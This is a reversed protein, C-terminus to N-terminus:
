VRRHKTKILERDLGTHEIIHALYEGGINHPVIAMDAGKAYLESASTSDAATCIIIPRHEGKGAMELVLKVDDMDPVTCVVLSAETINIEAGIEIDAIDGYIATVGQTILNEVIDPNFDVVVLQKGFKELVPRIASGTRSHGLLIIHDKLKLKDTIQKDKAQKKEFVNLYKSLRNYLKDGYTILYTSLTMTIIGVMTVLTLVSPQVHGSKLAVAILILSFESIQAVTLGALFSTRKKYGMLGMIVMVILPNGILVFVSLIAVQVWLGGLNSFNLNAGLWIFFFTVFFDRIPRIRSSIQLHEWANAMTLGALFGGIEIGFGITRTSTFAALGLCWAISGLFLLEPSKAFKLLLNPFVKVSLFVAGAVLVIGKVLVLGLGTLDSGSQGLGSLFVLLGIAVFDQVLLFGVSIKGYLSQLDKKETLLKIIIITSSFALAIAIYIAALDSYGFAKIIAYGALSTFVIQGIGTAMAVRGVRKLESIPLDLGVTFLLFTVGLQGSLELITELDHGLQGSFLKVGVGVIVYGLLLPQRLLKAVVGGIAALGLVLAMGSFADM